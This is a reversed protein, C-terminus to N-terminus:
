LRKRNIKELIREVVDDSGDTQLSEVSLVESDREVLRVHAAQSYPLVHVIWQDIIDKDQSKTWREEIFTLSALHDVDDGEAVAYQHLDGDTFSLSTVEGNVKGNEFIEQVVGAYNQAKLASPMVLVSLCAVMWAVARLIGSRKAKVIRVRLSAANMQSLHWYSAAPPRFAPWKIAIPKRAHAGTGIVSVGLLTPTM